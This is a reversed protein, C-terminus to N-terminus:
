SRTNEATQILEDIHNAELNIWGKTLHAVAKYLSSRSWTLSNDCFKPVWKVLHNKLFSREARLTEIARQRDIMAWKNSEEECLARLFDLEVGIYDASEGATRSVALGSKSYIDSVEKTSFGMLVGELYVSEYPPPPGYSAGIGRLLRTRDILLNQLLQDENIRSAESVFEKMLASAQKFDDAPDETSVLKRLSDLVGSTRIGDLLEKTPVHLYVGALFAYVKSRAAAVQAIDEPTADDSVHAPM